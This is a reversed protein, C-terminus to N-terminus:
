TREISNAVLDKQMKRIVYRERYFTYVGSGVIILSGLITWSDPIDGFVVFGLIIAWILITYRFPSSFSIDGVRMAMISFQYGFIVFLSALALLSIGEATVPRWETTFSLIAGVVMVSISTLLSVFLSPVAASLRRTSLDRLVIFLVAIIAYVSFENFGDSGPRVVMIVGIFGASIALYRRWGVAESLFIAGALTVALPLAQLIATANAIPMHFLATLYFVAGGVEGVLRLSVALRDGKPIRLTLVGKLLCFGALLISTFVGRLFMAQFISLHEAVLKMTTDNIVFAAMSISMFAAGRMNDSIQVSM